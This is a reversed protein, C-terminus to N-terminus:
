PSILEIVDRINEFADLYFIAKSVESITDSSLVKASNDSFKEIIWEDSSRFEEPQWAGKLYVTEEKYTRGRATVEVAMPRAYPDKLMALAFAKEDIKPEFEVRQMFERIRPDERLDQDLWRTSKIRHAACGLLFPAYFCYDETTRLKNEQWLRFQVIPHLTFVVREIEEPKLDNEDIIQIFKDM